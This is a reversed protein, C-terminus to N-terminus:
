VVSGCEYGVEAVDDTGFECDVGGLVDIGCECGVEAADDFGNGSVVGGAVNAFDRVDANGSM